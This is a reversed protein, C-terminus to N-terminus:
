QSLRPNGNATTPTTFTGSETTFGGNVAGLFGELLAHGDTEPVITTVTGGYPSGVGSLPTTGDFTDELSVGSASTVKFDDLLAVFDGPATQGGNFSWTATDNHDVDSSTFQGSALPYQDETVSAIPAHLDTTIIPADNAGDITVTVQQATGDITHVTFTDTLTDGVNLAQVAANANDLVYAWTGGATMTFTGYGHDSATAASVAQFTNAPNDVDTDTLTGTVTNAPPPASYTRIYDINMNAPFPTTGDPSGPWSGGVAVNAIMYMPTNLDSPTATQFVQQGDFYWTITTPEWDVGYTHFGASMDAVTTAAGTSVLNGTSYSHVTTYLTTPDSGLVEMADLEAHSGNAPLLWFAPLLGQGAPLEARMEFYGYLQQHSEYSTIMGSSYNYHDYYNNISAPAASITLNGGAVNFPDPLAAGAPTAPNVYWQLENNFPETGSPDILRGANAWQPGGIMDWNAPTPAAVNFEDGFSTGSEVVTGTTTGSIVAADNVPTVTLNVSQTASLPGGAGTNGLDNATITLTDGGNYNLSPTYTLGSALATDIDAQSGTLVVAGSGLGSVTLGATSGLSLAGNGVDLSVQIPSSGADIDSVSITTLTLPTDEATTTGGAGSLVWSDTVVNAFAAFGSDNGTFTVHDIQPGNLIYHVAPSPGNFPFISTANEGVSGLVHNAADYATATWQPYASGSPG